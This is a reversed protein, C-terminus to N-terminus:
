ACQLTLKVYSPSRASACDSSWSSAITRLTASSSAPQRVRASFASPSRLSAGAAAARVLAAPTTRGSGSSRPRTVSSSDSFLDSRIRTSAALPRTPSRRARNVNRSSCPRSGPPLPPPALPPTPPPAFHGDLLVRHFDHDAAVLVGDSGIQRGFVCALHGPVHVLRQLPDQALAGDNFGM